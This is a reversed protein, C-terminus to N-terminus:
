QYKYRIIVVGSGGAGAAGGDIDGGGGGGTNATGAVGSQDTQIGGNGGGGAGGLGRQGETTGHTGGGGGGARTVASGTISSSLGDGGDGGNSATASEGVESAGGGGGGSEGGSNAVGSGGAFGQGSPSAAGGTSNSGSTSGAGAGGSGGASGNNDGGGASIYTGGGGGGTSTISSFVSDGGNNGKGSTATGGAGVTISYTTETVAFGTATKYGGGGGGGGSNEGGSGGGAVVLYEVGGEPVTDFSITGSANFTNIAYDGDFSLSGGNAITRDVGPNRGARVQNVAGDTLPQIGFAYYHHTVASGNYSNNDGDRIKFGNSLFDFENVTTSANIAGTECPIMYQYNQNDGLVQASMAWHWTGTVDRKITVAQPSGGLNIMPGDANLNGVYSAQHYPGSNAWAYLVYTGSSTNVAGNTGVTFQTTTPSTDNWISTSTIPTVDGNAHLYATNGVSELYILQDNTTDTRYKIFMLGPATDLASPFTEAHASGTGTFTHIQFYSGVYFVEIMYTGTALDSSLTLTTGTLSGDSFNAEAFSRENWKIHPLAGRVTDVVYWDGTSDTRKIRAMAGGSVSTPLTVATTSGNSHSIGAEIYYEDEYNIVAPTINVPLLALYDTPAATNFTSIGFNATVINSGDGAYAAAYWGSATTATLLDTFMAGTKSAGSTPDGSNYYTGNKSVYIAGNDMDVAFGIIDGATWSTGYAQWAGVDPSYKEGNQIRIIRCQSTGSSNGTSDAIGYVSSASTGADCTYEWYWKGTKPITMDSKFFQTTGTLNGNSLTGADPELPSFTTGNSYGNDADNTPSDNTATITGTPFFSNPGLTVHTYAGALTANAVNQTDTLTTGREDNMPFHHVLNASSVYDGVDAQPDVYTEAGGYLDAIEAATLVKDWIALQAMKGDFYTSNVLNEAITGTSTFAPTGSGGLSQSIAAGNKYLTTASTSLAGTTHTITWMTWTGPTIADGNASVQGTSRIQWQLRGTHTSMQVNGIQVIGDNIGTADNNNVWVLITIPGSGSDVGTEATFTATGSAGDFSIGGMSQLASIDTGAAVDVGGEILFGSSSYTIDKVENIQWFGDETVEGFDTPSHNVGNNFFARAVYGNLYTSGSVAYRGLFRTYSADYFYHDTNQTYTGTVAMATGNVWVKIGDAIAAQASDYAIDIVYYGAPDRLLATTQAFIKLTSTKVYVGIKNDSIFIRSGNNADLMQSLLEISASIDAYKLIFHAHYKKNGDTDDAALTNTLYGSSGDFLGSGQIIHGADAGAAGAAGILINNGLM